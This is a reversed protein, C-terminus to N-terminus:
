DHTVMFMLKSEFTQTKTLIAILEAKTLDKNPKFQNSETIIGLRFAQEVSERAWHNEAIDWYPFTDDSLESDNSVGELKMIAAIADVKRISTDPMFDGDILSMVGNHVCALIADLYLSDEFVDLVNTTVNESPELDYLNSLYRALDTRTLVYKPEFNATAVTLDLYRAKAAAMQIWHTSLDEYTDLGVLTFAFDEALVNLTVVQKTASFTVSESFEGLANPTITYPGFSFPKPPYMQGIVSVTENVYFHVSKPSIFSIKKLQELRESQADLAYYVPELYRLKVVDDKDADVTILEDYSAQVAPILQALQIFDSVALNEKLNLQVNPEIYGANLAAQVFKAVWHKSQVDNYPLHISLSEFPVDMARVLTLLYELKTIKRDPKFLGDPFESMWKSSVCYQISEHHWDNKSVDSFKSASEITDTPQKLQYIFHALDGRTFDSELLRDKHPNYLYPTNYFYVYERRQSVFKEIDPPTQLRVIQRKITFYRNDPTLFSVYLPQKGVVDLDVETFFQGNQQLRVSEGNVFVARLFTNQGKVQFSSKVTVEDTAPLDLAMSGLFEAPVDTMFLNSSVGYPALKRLLGRTYVADDTKTEVLVNSTDVPVVSEVETLPTASGFGSVFLASFFLGFILTRKLVMIPLFKLMFLCRLSAFIKVFLFVWAAAAGWEM